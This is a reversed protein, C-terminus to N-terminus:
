LGRAASELVSPMVSGALLHDIGGSQFQLITGLATPLESAKAGNITVKPLQIPSSSNSGSEGGEGSGEKGASEIVVIGGLGEGYCILAADHGSAEILRVQHREMGALTTPAQLKFPVKAQVAALGTTNANLQPHGGSNEGSGSSSPPKITTKKVGEPLELTFTSAPVPEYSIETAALELVPTSDGKAYVALRLPLGHNADFALEAAGVLGGNKQPSIRVAYAPQGGVDTPLAGSVNVHGMLRTIAEQIKAVSPVASSGSPASGSGTAGESEKAAPPTYTYLTNASAQYISLASGDWVIQTAGKESQLELRAKGDSALWVRGSGGSLLPNSAGGGGEPSQINVGELLRNVLQVHASIGQVRPGSLADHIAQALPKSPPTPGGLTSALATGAVGVAIIAALLALLRTLPMRRLFRSM